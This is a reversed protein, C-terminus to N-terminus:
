AATRPPGSVKTKVPPMPSCAAGTRARIQSAQCEEADTQVALAVLSGRRDDRAAAAPYGDAHHVGVFVQHDGPVGTPHDPASFSRPKESSPPFAICSPIIPRPLIPALMTRRRM